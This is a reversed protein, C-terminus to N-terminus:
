VAVITPLYPAHFHFYHHVFDGRETTQLTEVELLTIYSELFTPHALNWGGVSCAYKDGDPFHPVNVVDIESILACLDSRSVRASISCPQALHRCFRYGDCTTPPSTAVRGLARWGLWDYSDVPNSAISCKKETPNVFLITSSFTRRWVCGYIYM